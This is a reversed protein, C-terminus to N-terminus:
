TLPRRNGFYKAIKAILASFGIVIATVVYLSSLVAGGRVDISTVYLVGLFLPLASAALFTTGAVGIGAALILYLNVWDAAFLYPMWRIFIWLWIGISALWVISNLGQIIASRTTESTASM